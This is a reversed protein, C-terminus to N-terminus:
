TSEKSASLAAWGKHGLAQLPRFRAKYSMKESREVWYGLYVYPLRARKAREILWLVMWTGISEPGRAPDFFSYVASFGDSLSDTLLTGILRGDRDRFEVISTDVTSEEIMSAYDIAGMSAMEGQGHRSAIYRRFVDFQEMTATPGRIMATVDDNKRWVRRMSKSARFEQAVVRVALCAQCGVCNPRYAFTHSRRFGAHALRDYLMHGSGPALEVLVKREERGPLYPCPAPRTAYFDVSTM